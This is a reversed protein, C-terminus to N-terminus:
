VYQVIAPGYLLWECPTEECHSCVGDSSVGVFETEESNNTSTPIFESPSCITSNHFGVISLDFCIVVSKDKSLPQTIYNMLSVIMGQKLDGSNVLGHLCKALTLQYWHGCDSVIIDAKSGQFNVDLLQVKVHVREADMPLLLIMKVGEFTVLDSM